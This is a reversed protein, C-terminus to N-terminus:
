SWILLWGLAATLPILIGSWRGIPAASTEALSESDRGKPRYGAYSVGGPTDDVFTPTDFNKKIPKAAKSQISPADDSSSSSESSSSKSSKASLYVETHQNSGSPLGYAWQSSASSGDHKASKASMRAAGEENSVGAGEESESSEGPAMEENNAVSDDESSASWGVDDRHDAYSFSSGAKSGKGSKSGSSASKKYGTKPKIKAAFNPHKSVKSIAGYWEDDDARTSNSDSIAPGKESKGGWHGFREEPVYAGKDAKPKHGGGSSSWGDTSTANADGSSSSASWSWGDPRHKKRKGRKAGKGSKGSTGKGSKGSSWSPSSGPSWKDESTTDESTETSPAPPVPQNPDHTPKQTPRRTVPLGGIQTPSATTTPADTPTETPDTTPNFTPAVTPTLSPEFTPDLTPM